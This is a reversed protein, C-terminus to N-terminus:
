PVVIQVPDGPAAQGAVNASVIDYQVTKGSPLGTLTTKSETVTKVNVPVPGVGVILQFL